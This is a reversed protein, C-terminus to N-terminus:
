PTVHVSLATLIAGTSATFTFVNVGRKLAAQLASSSLTLTVNSKGRASELAALPQGNLTIAPTEFHDEAKFALELTTKAATAPDDAIVLEATASTAPKLALPLPGGGKTLDDDGGSELFYEKPLRALLARDAFEDLMPMEDRLYYNFFYLGDAGKHWLTAIAARLTEPSGFRPVNNRNQRELGGYVPVRYRHALETWRELPCSSFSTGPGAIIADLWGAKLYTEVDLGIALATELTLPVRAVLRLPHGRRKAAEDLVARIDRVFGTMTAVNVEGKPFLEPSRLWDLEVGDLDYRNCAERLTDLFYARVEAHAYNFAVSANNMAPRKASGQIWPLFQEEWEKDTPPKLFLHHHTRRYSDWLHPWNFWGHHVDNMRMSFFFTCGDRKWFQLIPQLPDEGLAAIHDRKLEWIPLGFNGCYSLGQTKTKALPGIRPALADDLSHISPLPLYKGAPVWLGNSHHEPYAPWKLDDSDNNFLIRPLGRSELTASRNTDDSASLNTVPIVALEASNNNWLERGTGVRTSKDGSNSYGVYLKGDHEVAYPYSLAAGKNSEGPGDPFEADRIVFAKSFLAEGPKSVAITLPSRRKGSDATTTCVLYRQGTSLVGAIPKSTAMPLNAARMESWTRGHDESTAALAQAKRGYRSISTIRNGNVIVTSEGWMKGLGKAQPIPVVDWRSFDDGHSIAVIAPDGEGVKLGAMIWNGDDMKQPEQMPWFGGEIVTGKPRWQQTKEELVYARTHVGTMTGTYAGHFAWLTGNHSLFAGHSVGVPGEGADITGVESWTKGDDESTCFRAEETDTNEGGKNHGFSAYLRGKHFCLAVGHLFRYGDKHFEYPKIVSFRAGKLVPIEAAKPLTQTADWLPAGSPGVQMAVHHTDNVPHYSAAIEEPTLARAIVSCEDLAGYFAQQAGGADWVGGLTIPADTRAIPRKLKVEGARKANLFLTAKDPEVVLAAWHWAGAKLSDGCSITNWGDQKLHAQLRGDPEITLSWERENRSYRNKGALVQQAVTLEYPNFWLSITFVGGALKASDKLEILSEGDLVLSSGSAGTAPTANGRVLLSADVGDLPWTEAILPTATSLLFLVARKIIKFISKRAPAQNPMFFLPCTM